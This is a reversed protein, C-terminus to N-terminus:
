NKRGVLKARYFEIPNGNPSVAVAEIAQALANMVTVNEVDITDDDNVDIVTLDPCAITLHFKKFPAVTEQYFMRVGLERQAYPNAPRTDDVVQTYAVLTRKALSGTTIAAVAAQITAIATDTAIWTTDDVDPIGIRFSSYENTRDRITFQVESM